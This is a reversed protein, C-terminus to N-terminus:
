QQKQQKKNYVSNSATGIIMYESPKIVLTQFLGSQHDDNRVNDRM